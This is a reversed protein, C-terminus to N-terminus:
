CTMIRWKVAVRLCGGALWYGTNCQSSAPPYHFFRKAADIYADRLTEGAKRTHFLVGDAEVTLNTRTVKLAFNGSARIWRGKNSLLLPQQQNNKNNNRLDVSFNEAYPMSQGDAINGGWWSEGDILNLQLSNNAIQPPGANGEEALVPGASLAMLAVVGVVESTFSHRM